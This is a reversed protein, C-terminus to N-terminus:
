ATFIFGKDQLDILGDSVYEKIMHNGKKIEQYPVYKKIWRTLMQYDKIFLGEKKKLMGKDDYYQSSIWLRGRLIKKPGDKIITKSFQIVPSIISDMSEKNNSHMVLNGYDQKYLYLGFINNSNPQEIQKATNDLFEFQHHRLFDIFSDQTDKSMYFNIQRGM